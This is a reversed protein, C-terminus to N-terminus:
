KYCVLCNLVSKDLVVSKVPSGVKSVNTPTAMPKSGTSLQPISFIFNCKGVIIIVTNVGKIPSFKTPTLDTRRGTTTTKKGKEQISTHQKTTSSLPEHEWDNIRYALAELRNKRVNSTPIQEM